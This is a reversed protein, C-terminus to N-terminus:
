SISTNSKKRKILYIIGIASIAILTVWLIPRFRIWAAAIILLWISLWLVFSIIGTWFGIISSLIPLIAWLTIVLSFLLNCWIILLLLWVIRLIRTLIKNSEIANEFMEQMTEIRNSLMAITDWVNTQYITLQNGQQKAIISVPWPYAATYTIRKDWIEPASNNWKGVYLINNELRIWSFNQRLWTTIVWSDITVISDTAIQDVLNGQLEFIGANVKEWGIKLSFPKIAENIHWKPQKFMSSNIENESWVKKYRYTTTEEQSWWIKNNTDTTTEEERQYMEVKRVLVIAGSPQVWFEEDRAPTQSSTTWTTYVLKGEYLPNVTNSSVAVVIKQGEELSKQTKVARGENRRLLWIWIIILIIWWIINKLSSKLRSFYGFNETSTFQDMNIDLNLVISYICYSWNKCHIRYNKHTYKQNIKLLYIINYDIIYIM